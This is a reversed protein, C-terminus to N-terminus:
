DVMWYQYAAEKKKCENYVIELDGITMGAQHELFMRRSAISNKFQEAKLLLMEPQEDKTLMIGTKLQREIFSLAYYDKKLESVMQQKQMSKMHEQDLVQQKLEEARQKSNKGM